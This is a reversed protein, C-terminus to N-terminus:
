GGAATTNEYSVEELKQSLPIKVQVKTGLGPRSTITLEGGLLTAREEMGLLGWSPRQAQTLRAM